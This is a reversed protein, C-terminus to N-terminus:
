SKKCKDEKNKWKDELIKANEELTKANETKSNELKLINFSNDIEKIEIIKDSYFIANKLEELSEPKIIQSTHFTTIDILNRKKSDFTDLIPYIFDNLIPAFHKFKDALNFNEMFKYLIIFEGKELGLVLAPPLGNIYNFKVHIYKINDKLLSLLNRLFNGLDFSKNDKNDELLHIQYNESFLGNIINISFEINKNEFIEYKKLFEQFDDICCIPFTFRKDESEHVKFIKKFDLYIPQNM